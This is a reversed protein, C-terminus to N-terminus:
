NEKDMAKDVFAANEYENKYRSERKECAHVETVTYALTKRSSTLTARIKNTAINIIM